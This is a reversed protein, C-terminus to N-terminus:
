QRQHKNTIWGVWKAVVWHLRELHLTKQLGSRLFCFGPRSYCWWVATVHAIYFGCLTLVGRHRGQPRPRSHHPKLPTLPTSIREWHQRTQNKQGWFTQLSRYLDIHCPFTQCLIFKQWGEMTDNGGRTKRSGLIPDVALLYNQAEWVPTCLGELRQHSFCPIDEGLTSNM